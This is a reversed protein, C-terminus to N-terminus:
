WSYKPTTITFSYERSSYRNRSFTWYGTGRMVEFKPTITFNMKYGSSGTKITYHLRQFSENFAYKGYTEYGSPLFWNNAYDFGIKMIGKGTDCMNEISLADKNVTTSASIGSTEKSGITLGVTYSKMGSQSEPSYAALMMGSPIKSYITLYESYGAYDYADDNLGKM